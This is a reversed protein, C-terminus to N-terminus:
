SSEFMLTPVKRSRKRSRKRTERGQETLIRGLRLKPNVTSFENVIIMKGVAAV